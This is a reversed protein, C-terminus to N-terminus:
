YEELIAILDMEFVFINIFSFLLWDFM